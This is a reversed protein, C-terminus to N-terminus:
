RRAKRMRLSGIVWAAFAVFVIAMLLDGAVGYLLVGTADKIRGAAMSLLFAIVAVSCGVQRLRAGEVTQIAPPVISGDAFGFGCDCREATAANILGCKPCKM